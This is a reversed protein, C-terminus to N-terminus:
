NEDRKKRIQLKTGPKVDAKKVSPLKGTEDEYKAIKKHNWGHVTFLHTKLHHERSLAKLCKKAPCPWCLENIGHKEVFRKQREANTYRGLYRQM